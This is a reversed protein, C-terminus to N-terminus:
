QWIYIKKSDIIKIQDSDYFKKNYVWDIDHLIYEKRNIQSILTTKESNWNLM